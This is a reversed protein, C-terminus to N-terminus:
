EPYPEVKGNQRWLFWRRGPRALSVVEVMADWHGIFFSVQQKEPLHLVSQKVFIITLGAAKLADRESPKAAIKRDYTLAPWGVKAIDLMWQEDTIDGRGYHDRLHVVELDMARLVAALKLPMNNDLFFKM